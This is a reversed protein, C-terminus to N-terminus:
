HHKCKEYCVNNNLDIHFSRSKEFGVKLLVPRHIVNTQEQIEGVVRGNLSNDSRTNSQSRCLKERILTFLMNEDDQGVHARVGVSKSLNAKRNKSEDVDSHSRKTDNNKNHMIIVLAM